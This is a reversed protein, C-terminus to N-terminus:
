QLPGLALTFTDDGNDVIDVIRHPRQGQPTDPWGVGPVALVGYPDPGRPHSLYVSEGIVCDELARGGTWLVYQTRRTRASLGRTLADRTQEYADPRLLPSYHDIDVVDPSAYRAKLYAMINARRKRSIQGNVVIIELILVNGPSGGANLSGFVPYEAGYIGTGSNAPTGVPANPSNVYLSLWVNGGIAQNEWEVVQLANTLPASTNFWASGLTYVGGVLTYVGATNTIELYPFGGGVSGGFIAASTGAGPLSIPKFAVFVAGQTSAFLSGWTATGTVRDNAGDFLVGPLGRFQAEQYKGTAGAAGYLTSSPVTQSAWPVAVM